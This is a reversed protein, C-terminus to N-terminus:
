PSTHTRLLRGDELFFTDQTDRAPHDAPFNLLAFNHQDDEAEPGEAGSYGLEAFIQEIERMALTVPHLSGLEPSRGPLSVDVSSRRELTSREAARLQEDAEELRQEVLAKLENVRQGFAKRDAAPVQGISELLSRITGGKRGLLEVRVREWEERSSFPGRDEFRRRIEDVAALSVPSAPSPEDSM